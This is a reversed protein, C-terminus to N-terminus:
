SQSTGGRQEFTSAALRCAHDRVNSPWGETLALFREEDGAYLARLAEEYGPENGGMTSMFRYCSERARRVRVEDVTTRRAEEVLKRLTVSAGGPQENLWEWHRPLLTVERAVVGLRPRGAARERGAPPVESEKVAAASPNAVAASAIRSTVDEETGRLDVEVPESTTADLILVPEGHREAMAKKVLGAVVSLEGSAVCASGIFAVVDGDHIERDSV